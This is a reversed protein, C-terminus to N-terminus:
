QQGYLNRRSELFRSWHQESVIAIQSGCRRQEVAFEIKRGYVSHMWDSSGLTGVVLYHTQGTPSAQARGGKAIIVSECWKRPGYIFKGTLCFFRDEFSIVPPPITLPLSTSLNNVYEGPSSDVGTFKRLLSLLEAQEDQDFIGDALMQHIRGYLVDSPWQSAVGRNTEMWQALFQAERKTVLGDAILGKCIGILEDIARDALRAHNYFRNRPQGHDDHDPKDDFPEDDNDPRSEAHRRIDEPSLFQPEKREPRDAKPVMRLPKESTTMSKGEKM